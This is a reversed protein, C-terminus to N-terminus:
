STTQQMNKLANGISFFILSTVAIALSPWFIVWMENPIHTRANSLLTPWTEFANIAIPEGLDNVAFTMSIFMAFFGLQGLLMMMKSIDLCFLVILSSRIHRWYYKRWVTWRSSGIMTPTEMFSKQRVQHFSEQVTVATRGLEFLVIGIFVFLMRYESSIVFPITMFFIMGILLPMFSFLQNLLHIGQHFIGKQKRGFYALPVALIFRVAVIMLVLLLTGQGASMLQGFLDNGAADSGLVFDEGPPFPATRISGDNMIMVGDEHEPSSYIFPGVFLFAVLM